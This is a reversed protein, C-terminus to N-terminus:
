SVRNHGELKSDFQEDSFTLHGKDDFMAYILSTLIDIAALHFSSM